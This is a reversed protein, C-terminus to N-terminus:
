SKLLDAETTITGDILMDAIDDDSFGLVEKYVYENHEGLCPAASRLENKVKSLKYSSNRYAHPGIVSHNLTTFADRYELQPDEFCDQNSEVIGASVGVTQLLNMIEGPAYNITWGEVLKDLEDENEKRKKFTSFKESKVWEPHGIAQCFSSWEEDTFITITVWRDEGLCRYVGHPSAYPHHNGLRSAERGNVIYDLTAPSLLTIAAELQSQELYMGKGTRRRHVLAATLATLAYWPAIFDTYPGYMM